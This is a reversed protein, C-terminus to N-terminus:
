GRRMPQREGYTLSRWLWEFPGFRYYKLWIPSWVLEVAWIAFVVYWPEMGRMEGFMGFGWGLFITGCIISQMLYNTLAMQGTAALMSRVWGLINAKVLVQLAGLWAFALGLRSFDNFARWFSSEPSTFDSDTIVQWLNLRIFLGVVLGGITLAGIAGWSAQATLLGGRYLVIGLLM